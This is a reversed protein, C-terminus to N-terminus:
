PPYGGLRSLGDHPQLHSRVSSRASEHNVRAWRLEVTAGVAGELGPLVTRSGELLHAIRKKLSTKRIGSKM